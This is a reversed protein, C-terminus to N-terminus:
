PLNVSCYFFFAQVLTLCQLYFKSTVVALTSNLSRLSKWPWPSDLVGTCLRCSHWLVWPFFTSCSFELFPVWCGFLANFECACSVFDEWRYLWSIWNIRFSVGVPSWSFLRKFTNLQILSGWETGQVWRKIIDADSAGWTFISVEKWICFSLHCYNPCSEWRPNEFICM